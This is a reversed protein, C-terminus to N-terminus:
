YEVPVPGRCRPPHPRHSRVRWPPGGSACGWRAGRRRCNQRITVSATDASIGCKPASPHMKRLGTVIAAALAAMSRKTRMSLRRLLALQPQSTSAVTASTSATSRALTKPRRLTVQATKGNVCNQHNNTLAAAQRVSQGCCPISGALLEVHRWGARSAPNRGTRLCGRMVQAGLEDHQRWSSVSGEGLRFSGHKRPPDGGRDSDYACATEPPSGVTVALSNRKPNTGTLVNTAM